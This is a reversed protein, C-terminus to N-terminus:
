KEEVLKLVAKYRPEQHRELYYTLEQTEPNYELMWVNSEAEPIMEFTYNDAHFFQKYQTPQEGKYPASYGGYLTQEDPLGDEHRHDHRLRLGNDTKYIIWTRSKDEGVHFPISVYRPGCGDITAVLEKGAFDHNPDEPYTSEGVFQSGCMRTLNDFFALEEDTLDYDPSFFCACSTLFLSSALVSTIKTQTKMPNHVKRM